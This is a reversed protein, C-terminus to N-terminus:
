QLANQGGPEGWNNGQCFSKFSFLKKILNTLGEQNQWFHFREDLAIKKM